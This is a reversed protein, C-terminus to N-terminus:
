RRRRCVRERGERRGDMKRSILDGATWPRRSGRGRRGKSGFVTSRLDGSSNDVEMAQERAKTALQGNEGRIRLGAEPPDGIKVLDVNDLVPSIFEWLPNPPDPRFGVCVPTPKTARKM